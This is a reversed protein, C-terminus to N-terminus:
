MVEGVRAIADKSLLMGGLASQEALLNNPQVRELPSGAVPANPTTATPDGDFLSM